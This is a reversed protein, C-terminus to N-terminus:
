LGRMERVEQFLFALNEAASFRHDGDKVFILKVKDTKLKGALVISNQYPVDVDKMGHLISVPCEIPIVDHTLLLHERGEELLKKTIPFTSDDYCSPLHLVGNEEIEQLQKPPLKKRIENETFDPAPAIGILGAVRHSRLLALHLMIWGGMSSGILIQPGETVEDLIALADAIWDGISLELFDGTSSGHGTYDFCTYSINHEKCHDKLAQAKTGTMDSRFGSLFVVGPTKGKHHKYAISHNHHNLFLSHSM